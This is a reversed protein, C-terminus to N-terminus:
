CRLSSIHYYFLLALQMHVLNYKTNFVLKWWTAASEVDSVTVNSSHLTNGVHVYTERCVNVITILKQFDRCTGGMHTAGITM